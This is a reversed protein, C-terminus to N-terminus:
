GSRGLTSYSRVFAATRLLFNRGSRGVGDKLVFKEAEVVKAVNTAQAGCFMLCTCLPVAIAWATRHRRNARELDEIRQVLGDPLAKDM